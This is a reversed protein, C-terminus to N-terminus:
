KKDIEFDGEIISSNIEFNILFLKPSIDWISRVAMHNSSCICVVKEWFVSWNGGCKGFICFFMVKTKGRKSCLKFMPAPTLM